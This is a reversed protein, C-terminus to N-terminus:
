RVFGDLVYVEDLPPEDPAAMTNVLVAYGSGTHFRMFLGNTNSPQNDFSGVVTGLAEIQAYARQKFAKDSARQRTIRDTESEGAIAQANDKDSKMLLTTRWDIPDIPFGGALLAGITGARMREESRGTLYVIHAGRAHLGGVFLAAGPLPTDHRLYDNTFFRAAHFKRMAVRASEFLAEDMGLNDVMVHKLDWSDIHHPKLEKLKTRLSASAVADSKAFEQWIAWERMKSAFLCEDLDFIVVPNETAEVLEEISVLINRQANGLKLGTKWFSPLVVNSRRLEAELRAAWRTAFSDYYPTNRFEADLEAMQPMFLDSPLQSLGGCIRRLTSQSVDGRSVDALALQLVETDRQQERRKALLQYLDPLVNKVITAPATSPLDPNQVADALGHPGQSTAYRLFAPTM